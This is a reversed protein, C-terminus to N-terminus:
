AHSVIECCSLSRAESCRNTAEGSVVEDKDFRHVSILDLYCNRFELPQGEPAYLRTLEGM